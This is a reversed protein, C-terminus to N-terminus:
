NTDVANDEAARMRVLVEYVSKRDLDGSLTHTRRLLRSIDKQSYTILLSCGRRGTVRNRLAKRFKEVTMKRRSKVNLNIRSSIICYVYSTGCRSSIESSRLFFIFSQTSCYTGFSINYM